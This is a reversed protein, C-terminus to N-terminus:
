AALVSDDVMYMANVIQAATGAAAMTVLGTSTNHSTLGSSFIAGNRTYWNKTNGGTIDSYKPLYTSSWDVETGDQVYADMFYPYLSTLTFEFESYGYWGQNAGFALGNPFKTATVPTINLTVPNPNTQNGEVQQVNPTNRTITCKPYFIHFFSSSGVNEVDDIKAIACFAVTNPNPNINDPSSIEAGSLSTTDILGGKIVADLANDWVSLSLTANGITDIGAQIKGEPKGGGKFEVTSYTAQATQLSIVNKMLYAPYVTDQVLADPDGTGVGIGGSTLRTIWAFELSFLHGSTM